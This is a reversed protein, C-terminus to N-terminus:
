LFNWVIAVASCATRPMFSTSGSSAASHCRKSSV